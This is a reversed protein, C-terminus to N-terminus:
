EDMIHEIFYESSGDKTIIPGPHELERSPFLTVDNKHHPQLQSVHFLPIQKSSPPLLLKYTSLEPYVEIIEYPGDQRVMFKAVAWRQSAHIRTKM